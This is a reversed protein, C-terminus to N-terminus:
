PLNEWDKWNHPPNWGEYNDEGKEKRQNYFEIAKRRYRPYDVELAALGDDRWRKRCVNKTVRPEGELETIMLLQTDYLEGYKFKPRYRISTPIMLSTMAFYNFTTLKQPQYEYESNKNVDCNSLFDGCFSVNNRRIIKLQKELRDKTSYDDTDCLAAYRADTRELARNRAVSPGVREEGKILHVKDTKKHFKEAVKKTQDEQEGDISVWIDYDDTTQNLATNLCKKLGKEDSYCPIVFSVQESHYKNEKVKM